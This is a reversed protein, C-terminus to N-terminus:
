AASAHGETVLLPIATLVGLGAALYLLSASEDVNGVLLTSVAALVAVLAVILGLPRGARRGLWESRAAIGALLAYALSLIAIIVVAVTSTDGVWGSLTSNTVWAAFLLLVGLVLGTVAIVGLLSTAIVRAMSVNREM